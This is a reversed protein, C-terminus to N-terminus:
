FYGRHEPTEMLPYKQMQSRNMYSQPPPLPFQQQPNQPNFKGGYQSQFFKQPNPKKQESHLLNQVNHRNISKSPRQPQPGPIVFDSNGLGGGAALTHSQAPPMSREKRQGQRGRIHSRDVFKPDRAKAQNGLVNASGQAGAPKAREMRNHSAYPSTYNHAQAGARGRSHENSKRGRSYSLSNIKAQARTNKRSPEFNNQFEFADGANNISQSTTGQGFNTNKRVMM